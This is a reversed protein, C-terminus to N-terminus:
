EEVFYFISICIVHSEINFMLYLIIPLVKIQFQCVPIPYKKGM